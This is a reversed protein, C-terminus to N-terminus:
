RFLDDLKLQHDVIGSYKNQKVGYVTILTCRLNKTTQQKGPSWLRAMGPACCLFPATEPERENSAAKM